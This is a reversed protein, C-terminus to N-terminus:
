RAPRGADEVPLMRWGGATEAVVLDPADGGARILRSNAEDVEAVWAAAVDAPKGFRVHRAVLREIRTADDTEVWWVADVSRRAERWEPRALLLYNGETVVLRARPPVVMAAAIPQELEREFGPAYVPRETETHLRRLLAAYGAADFTEPAGKRDRLGLRDLQVDALHFGDMPVHAVFGHGREEAVQAIVAEALTSKGAGPVGAIGLVARGGDPVLALAAAALEPVSM